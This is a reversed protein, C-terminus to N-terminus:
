SAFVKDNDHHVAKGDTERGGPSRASPNVMGLNERVSSRTAATNFYKLLTMSFYFIIDNIAQALPVPYLELLRM